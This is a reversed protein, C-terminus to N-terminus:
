KEKPKIKKGFPRSRFYDLQLINIKRGKTKKNIEIVATSVSEDEVLLSCLRNIGTMEYAFNLNPHIDLFEILYGYVGKIKKKRLVDLFNLDILPM